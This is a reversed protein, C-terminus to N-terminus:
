SQKLRIYIWLILYHVQKDVLIYDRERLIQLIKSYTSPRGVGIAELEKIFAAETFRSPPRTVHQMGQMGTYETVFNRGTDDIDVTGSELIDEESESDVLASSKAASFQERSIYMSQKVNMDAFHHTEISKPEYYADDTMEFAALYGKFLVRTHSSRFIAHSVEGSSLTPTPTTEGNIVYTTTQSQSPPMVSALTRKYILSYLSLAAGSLNTDGPSKFSGEHETPRIAEHAEQANVPADTMKDKKGKKTGAKGVEAGSATHIFEMGFTKKVVSVCIALATASLVPSDTRMYTIFGEEYLGQAVSMAKSPSLGLKRSAEQQLTSTIFPLPSKRSINRIEINSVTFTPQGQTSSGNLWELIKETYVGDVILISSENKSLSGTTGDFDNENAVKRSNVSYLKSKLVIPNDLSRV